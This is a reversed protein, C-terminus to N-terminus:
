RGWGEEDVIGEDREDATHCLAALEFAAFFGVGFCLACAVLVWPWAIM